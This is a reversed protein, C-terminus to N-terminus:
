VAGTLAAEKGPFDNGNTQKTFLTKMNIAYSMNSHQILVLLAHTHTNSFITYCFFFVISVEATKRM